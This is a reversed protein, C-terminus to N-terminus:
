FAPVAPVSWGALGFVLSSACHSCHLILLRSLLDVRTSLMRQPKSPNLPSIMALPSGAFMGVLSTHLLVGCVLM